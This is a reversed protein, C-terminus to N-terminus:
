VAVATEATETTTVVNTLVEHVQMGIVNWDFRSQTALVLGAVHCRKRFDQSRYLDDLAQITGARSPVGGIVNIGNVTCAIGDCTVFVAAEAWEELASWRPVVCPIGCSMAELTPLDWGEGQTTSLKVDFANYTIALEDEDVGPGADPTAYIVRGKLGAYHVLQKINIADDRTPGVHLYLYADRIGRKKVWDAFFLITLDLRKRVSNRCVAGVIFANHLDPHNPFLLRRCKLRDMPKYITRDVGLPIVSSEGKWGGAVCEDRGFNTWFIAHYIGELGYGPANLGDVAVIGVVPVASNVQKMYPPFNWPDNQILVLDPKVKEILEKTRGVGFFDGGPFCPYIPYPYSHPDGLYNLGLVTTDWHQCLTELIKHTSRAFGTAAVADGIWLLKKM